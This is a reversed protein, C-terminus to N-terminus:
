AHQGGLKRFARFKASRARPNERSEEETAVLPKKYINKVKEERQGTVPDVKVTEKIAQKVIRDELSHFSIFSGIGEPCLLDISESIFSKLVDLERNVYIRLGQFTLTAPHLHKKSKGVKRAILNSLDSTKEFPNNKREEVIISAIKRWRKEEGYDRIIEELEEKSFTNVVEKATLPNKQNMRMDLPGEKSFSFGREPLDLQMSSVGLDCLFADVCSIKLTKLISSIDSFNKHFFVVKGQWNELNKKAIELANEDQDCGIYCEIEPHAELLAKAHGGLGLTGDFFTKIKKDKFCELVEALLVPIHDPM